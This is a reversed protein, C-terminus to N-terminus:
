EQMPCDEKLSLARGKEISITFKLWLDEEFSQHWKRIKKPISAKRTLDLVGGTGYFETLKKLQETKSLTKFENKHLAKRKKQTPSEHEEPVETRDVTNTDNALSTEADKYGQDLIDDRVSTRPQKQIHRRQEAINNNIIMRVSRSNIVEFTKTALHTAKTVAKVSNKNSNCKSDWFETLNQLLIEKTKEEDHFGFSRSLSEILKM